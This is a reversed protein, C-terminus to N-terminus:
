SLVTLDQRTLSGTTDLNTFGSISMLRNPHTDAPIASFWRDCVRYERALFDFIPIFPPTFYGMCTPQAPTAGSPFQARVFGDMTYGPRPGTTVWHLQTQIPWRGHPLDPGLLDDTAFAYPGRPSGDNAPNNYGSALRATQLGNVPEARSNSWPDLSLYGLLSDFSRNEMMVIVIQDVGQVMPM